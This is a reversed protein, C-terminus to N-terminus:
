LIYSQFYIFKMAIVFMNLGHLFFLSVLYSLFQDVM